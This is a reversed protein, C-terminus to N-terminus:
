PSTLAVGVIPVVRDMLDSLMPPTADPFRSRLEDLLWLRAAIEGIIAEPIVVPITTQEHTKITTQM